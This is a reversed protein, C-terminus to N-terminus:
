GGQPVLHDPNLELLPTELPLEGRGHTLAGVERPGFRHFQSAVSASLAESSQPAPATGREGHVAGQDPPQQLEQSREPFGSSEPFMNRDLSAGLGVFAVLKTNQLQTGLQQSDTVCCCRVHAPLLAQPSLRRPLAGVERPPAVEDPLREPLLLRRAPLEAFAEACITWKAGHSRQPCVGLALLAVVYPMQLQLMRQQSDM